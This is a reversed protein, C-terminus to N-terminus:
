AKRAGCDPPNVAASAGYGRSAQQVNRPMEQTTAGQEEVASAITSAIESIKAITDGIETIAAVVRCINRCGDAPAVMLNV